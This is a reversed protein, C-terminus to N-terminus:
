KKRNILDRLANRRDEAKKLAKVNQLYSAGERAAPNSLAAEQRFVIGELRELDRQRLMKQLEAEPLEDALAAAKKIPTAPIAEKARGTFQSGKLQRIMQPTMNNLGTTGMGMGMDMGTNLAAQLSEAKAQEEPSRLAKFSRKRQEEESSLGMGFLQGLPTSAAAERDLLLSEEMADQMPQLSNQPTKNLTQMLKARDEESMMDQLKPRFGSNDEAM